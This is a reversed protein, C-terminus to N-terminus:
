GKKRGRPLAIIASGLVQDDTGKLTIECSAGKCRIWFSGSDSMLVASVLRDNELQFYNEKRMWTKGPGAWLFGRIRKGKLRGRMAIAKM